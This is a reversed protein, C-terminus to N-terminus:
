LTDSNLLSKPSTALQECVQELVVSQTLPEAEESCVYELIETINSPITRLQRYTESPLSAKARLRGKIRDRDEQRISESFVRKRRLYDPENQLTREDSRFM